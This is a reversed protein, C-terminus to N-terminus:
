TSPRRYEKLLASRGTDGGPRGLRLLAAMVFRKRGKGFSVLPDLCGALSHPPCFQMAHVPQHQQRLVLEIRRVCRKLLGDVDGALV